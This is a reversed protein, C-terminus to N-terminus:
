RREGGEEPGPAPADSPAFAADEAAEEWEGEGGPAPAEAGEGGEAGEAGEGPAEAEDGGGGGEGGEDEGEEADPASPPPPPPPSERERTPLVVTEAPTLVGKETRRESEPTEIPDQPAIFLRGPTGTRNGDADDPLVLMDALNNNSESYPVAGSSYATM